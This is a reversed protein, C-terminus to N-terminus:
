GCGCTLGIGATTAEEDAGDDGHLGRDAGGNAEDDPPAARPGLKAERREDHSRAARRELIEIASPGVGIVRRMM